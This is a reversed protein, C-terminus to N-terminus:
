VVGTLGHDPRDDLDGIDIRPTKDVEPASESGPVTPAPNSSPVSDRTIEDEGRPEQNDLTPTDAMIEKREESGIDGNIRIKLDEYPSVLRRQFELKALEMAGAVTNLRSYSFKGSKNFGCLKWTLRSIIYNLTGALKNNSLDKIMDVLSDIHQNLEARDEKKIYPM